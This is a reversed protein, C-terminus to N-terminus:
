EDPLVAFLHFLDDPYAHIKEGTEDKGTVFITGFSTFPVSETVVTATTPIRTPMPTDTPIPTYFATPFFTETPAPTFISPTSPTTTSSCSTLSIVFVTLLLQNKLKGGTMQHCGGLLPNYPM